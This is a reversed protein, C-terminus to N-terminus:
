RATSQVVLLFQLTTIIYLLVFGVPSDVLQACGVVLSLTRKAFSLLLAVRSEKDSADEERFM